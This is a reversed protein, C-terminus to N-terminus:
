EDKWPGWMPGDDPLPHGATKLALLVQGRHHADHVMMHILYADLSTHPLNGKDAAATAAQLVAEATQQAVSRIRTLDTEAIFADPNDEYLDPLLELEAKAFKKGFHKPTAVIEALHQAVTWGGGPTQANVMDPTLHELLVRNVRVNARWAEKVSASVSM